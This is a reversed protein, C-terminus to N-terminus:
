RTEAPRHNNTIEEPPQWVLDSSASPNLAQTVKGVKRYASVAMSAIQWEQDTWNRAESATSGQTPNGSVAQANRELSKTSPQASGYANPPVQARFGSNSASTPQSIQAGSMEPLSSVPRKTGMSGLIALGIIALALAPIGVAHRNIQSFRLM